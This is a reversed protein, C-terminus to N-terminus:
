QEAEELEVQPIDVWRYPGQAVPCLIEGDAGRLATMLLTGGQLSKASGISSVMVDIKSGNKAFPPLTATVM